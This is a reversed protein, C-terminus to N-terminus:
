YHCDKQGKMKKKDKKDVPPMKKEAMKKAPRKTM